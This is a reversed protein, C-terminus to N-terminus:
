QYKGKTHFNCHQGVSFLNYVRHYVSLSVWDTLCAYLVFWVLSDRGIQRPLFGVAKSLGSLGGDSLCVFLHFSFFIDGEEDSGHTKALRRIRKTSQQHPRRHKVVHWGHDVQGAESCLLESGFSRRRQAPLEAAPLFYLSRSEDRRQREHMGSWRDSRSVSGKTTRFEIVLEYVRCLGRATKTVARRTTLQESGTTRVFANRISRGILWRVSPRVCGRLSDHNVVSFSKRTETLDIVIDKM